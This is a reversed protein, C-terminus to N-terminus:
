TNDSLHCATWRGNKCQNRCVDDIDLMFAIENKGVRSLYCSYLNPVTTRQIAYQGKISRDESSVFCRWNGQLGLFVISPSRHADGHLCPSSSINHTLKDFGEKPAYKRVLFITDYIFM